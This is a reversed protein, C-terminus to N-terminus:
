VTIVVKGAVRGSKVYRIAEAAKSLPYTCDIVPAITGAAALDALVLLDDRSVRAFFFSMRQGRLRSRLKAGVARAAIRYLSGRGAGVLVCRGGPALVRGLDALPHYGGIDVVVDFRQETRTADGGTYDVVHDAGISGVLQLKPTATAATVTAGFAKAIQVAFSGVGGGAGLILVHHGARIQGKDRLAQLATSGAVAIAAAQQVSVNAPKRVFNRTSGAVYGAFAGACAGFVEDGPRLETVTSGVAEVIGAVDAGPVAQRPRRLGTTLRALYPRGRVLHWDQANVSSACVRVLVGDDGIVPVEIDRLELVEPPGYGAQFIAQM